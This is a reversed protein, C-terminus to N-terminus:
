HCSYAPLRKERGGGCAEGGRNTHGKWSPSQLTRRSVNCITITFVTFCHSCQSSGCKGVICTARRESKRRFTLVGWSLVTGICLALFRRHPTGGRLLPCAWVLTEVYAYQHPVWTGGPTAHRGEPGAEGEVHVGPVGAEAKLRISSM